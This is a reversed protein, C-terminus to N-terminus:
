SKPEKDARLPKNAIEIWVDAHCPRDLGCFCALNRGSLLARADGRLKKAQQTDSNIWEDFLDVAMAADKVYVYKGKIFYTEGVKYPNGWKGPRCVSVTNEPMRWGKTRKHQVRYPKTM